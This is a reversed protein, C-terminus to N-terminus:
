KQIQNASSTVNQTGSQHTVNQTSSEPNENQVHPTPTVNQTSVAPAEERVLVASRVIVDTEPVDMYVGKRTTKTEGIRDVVDMGIIVRGFVAYGYGSQSSNRYDLFANDALNVFFQSTASDVVQTRAMAVTGRRNKLGNDAENQIPPLSPIRQQLEPEFGGGQIVFGKIVRHFITNDYFGENAYALFNKVSIPAEKAYLEIFIDGYNTDLKVVSNKVDAMLVSGIFFIFVLVYKWYRM